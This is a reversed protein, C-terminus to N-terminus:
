DDAAYWTIMHKNLLKKIIYGSYKLLLYTYLTNYNIVVGKNNCM